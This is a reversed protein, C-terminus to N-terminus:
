HENRDVSEAEKEHEFYVRFVMARGSLHMGAYGRRFVFFLLASLARPRRARFNGYKQGVGVRPQPLLPRVKTAAKLPRLGAMLRDGLLQM